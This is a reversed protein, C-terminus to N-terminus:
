SVRLMEELVRLAYGHYLFEDGLGGISDLTERALTKMEGDGKALGLKWLFGAAAATASPVDTDFLDRERMFLDGSAPGSPASDYFLMSGEDHFRARMFDAVEAARGSYSEDGTVDYVDLLGRGFLAADELLAPPGAEKGITYRVPGPPVSWAGSWIAEACRAAEKVWDERKFVAGARALATVTLGNWSTIIKRDRAPGKRKMREELLAEKMARLGEREVLGAEEAAPDVRLINKGEFNGEPTMSFYQTFAEKRGPGLVEEVEDVTFLYSGGEEGEVDADEAAFFGGEPGQMGRMLYAITEEVVASFRQDHSLDYAESYVKVLLANDYLMKEFHPVRWAEDVSYRHFGGGLHDYIGGRAMAVLTEVVMALASPDATRRHNALLFDLFMAHPFKMGAGFGGNRGDYLDAATKLAEKTILAGQSTLGGGAAGEGAGGAKLLAERLTERLGAIQGRNEHYARSVSILVTKFSPMGASDEPPFYTGGFFPTGDPSVFVNLPWGGQGTIAQVAKMYLSDVHPHEERDVKVNIFHENMIRATELDEYSERELVHCWHCTSYGISVLLPKDERKARIFAEESWPLWDVPNGAHQLLYPSKESGLLNGGNGKEGM